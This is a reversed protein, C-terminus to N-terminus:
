LVVPSRVGARVVSEIRNPLQARAEGERELIRLNQRGGGELALHGLENLVARWEQKEDVRSLVFNLRLQWSM